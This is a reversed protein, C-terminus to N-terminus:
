GDVQLESVQFIWDLHMLGVPTVQVSPYLYKERERTDGSTPTFDVRKALLPLLRGKRDYQLQWFLSFKRSNQESACIQAVCM